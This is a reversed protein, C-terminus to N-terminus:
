WIDLHFKDSSIDDIIFQFKENWKPNLTKYQVSSVKILKAPIAKVENKVNKRSGSSSNSQLKRHFSDNFRQLM